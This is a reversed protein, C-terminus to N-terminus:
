SDFKVIIENKVAKSKALLLVVHTDSVTLRNICKNSMECMLAEFNLLINKTFIQCARCRM